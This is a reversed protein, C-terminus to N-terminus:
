CGFVHWHGGDDSGLPAVFALALDRIEERLLRIKDDAVLTAVVGPVGDDVLPARELEVQDWGADEIRVRRADEARAHDHVEREEAVLHERELLAPHARRIEADGVSRVDEHRPM